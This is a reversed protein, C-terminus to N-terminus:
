FEQMGSYIMIPQYQFNNLAFFTKIGAILHKSLVSAVFAEDTENTLTPPNNNKEWAM